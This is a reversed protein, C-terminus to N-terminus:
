SIGYVWLLVCFYMYCNGYKHPVALDGLVSNTLPKLPAPM